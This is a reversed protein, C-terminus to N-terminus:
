AGRGGPLRHHEELCAAREFPRAGDGGVGAGERAGIRGEVRGNALGAGHPDLADLLQEVQGSAKGALRQRAPAAEEDDGVAAPEPDHRGIGRACGPELDCREGLRDALSEAGHERGRRAQAIGDVEHAVRVRGPVSVRKM